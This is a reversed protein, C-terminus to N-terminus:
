LINTQLGQLYGRMMLLLKSSKRVHIRLVGHYDEPNDYIKVQKVKQYFPKTFQAEPIELYKSWYRQIEESKEKFAENLTLRPSFEIKKVGLCKELFLIMFKMMAPDSNCFGIRKEAEHKFGEAWYLSVGAIFLDRKSLTGIEKGATKQLQNKIKVRTQKQKEIMKFFKQLKRNTRKELNIKQSSTLVINRCWLSATSSSIKLRNAIDNISYGNKRLEIAKLKLSLKM